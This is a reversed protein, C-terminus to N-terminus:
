ASVSTGWNSRAMPFIDICDMLSFLYEILEREADLCDLSQVDSYEQITRDLHAVGGAGYEPNVL